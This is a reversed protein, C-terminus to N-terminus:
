LIKVTPSLPETARELGIASMRSEAMVWMMVGIFKGVPLVGM